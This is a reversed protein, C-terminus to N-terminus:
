RTYTKSYIRRNGDTDGIWLYEGEIYHIPQSTVVIRHTIYYFPFNEIEKAKNWGEAVMNYLLKRLTEVQEPKIVRWTKQYGYVNGVLNVINDKSGMSLEPTESVIYFTKPELGKSEIVFTSDTKTIITKMDKEPVNADDFKDVSEYHTYLGQSYSSISSALIFCLSLFLIKKM